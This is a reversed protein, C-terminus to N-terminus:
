RSETPCRKPEFGWRLVANITFYMQEGLAFNSGDGPNRVRDELAAENVRIKGRNLLYNKLVEGRILIRVMTIVNRKERREERGYPLLGM